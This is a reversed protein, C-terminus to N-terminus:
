PGWILLVIPTVWVAAHERIPLDLRLDLEAAGRRQGREAVARRLELVVVPIVSQVEEVAHEAEAQVVAALWPGAEAVQEVAVVVVVHPLLPM